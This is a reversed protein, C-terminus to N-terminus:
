FGGLLLVIGLLASGVGVKRPALTLRWAAGVAISLLGCSVFRLLILSPRQATVAGALIPPTLAGGQGPRAAGALGPRRPAWLRGTCCRCIPLLGTDTETMPKPPQTRPVVHYPSSLWASPLASTRQARSRPM